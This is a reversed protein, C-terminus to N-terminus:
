VTLDRSAACTSLTGGNLWAAADLESRWECRESLVAAGLEARRHAFGRTLPLRRAALPSRAFKLAVHRAPLRPKGGRSQAESLSRSARPESVPDLAAQWGEPLHVPKTWTTGVAAHTYYSRGDEAVGETWGPPLGSM